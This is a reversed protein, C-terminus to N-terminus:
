ADVVSMGMLKDSYKRTYDRSTALGVIIDLLLLLWYIKSLNRILAEGANPLRGGSAVVKLGLIRKGISSGSLVEAATFYLVLVVGALFTFFSGLFAGFVGPGSLILIPLAALAVLIGVAVFVIVCDVVFSLIRRVWYIQAGGEKIVADVGSVPGPLAQQPGAGV